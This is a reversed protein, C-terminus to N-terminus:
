GYKVGHRRYIERIFFDHLPKLNLHETIAKYRFLSVSKESRSFLLKGYKLVQHKLFPSAHNLIIIDIEYDVFPHLKSIVDEKFAITKEPSLKKKLLMAIDLDKPKKREKAQSGFLYVLEINKNKALERAIREINLTKKM